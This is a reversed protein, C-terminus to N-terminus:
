SYIFYATGALALLVGLASVANIWTSRTRTFLFAVVLGILLGGLHSQWSIGQLIFGLILNIGLLVLLPTTDRSFGKALIFLAGFLGFVAGSAGVVFTAWSAGTPDALALVAVNGGIASLLYLAAFRWWGFLPELAQGVLWLAYMNFILHWFDAHLFASGLFRYPQEEGLWPAFILTSELESWLRGFGYVGICLVMIIITVIPKRRRVTRYRDPDPPPGGPVPDPYESM